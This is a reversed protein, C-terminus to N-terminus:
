WSRYAENCAVIVDDDFIYDQSEFELHLKSIIKKRKKPSKLNNSPSCENSKNIFSELDERIYVYNQTFHLHKTQNGISFPLQYTPKIRLLDTFCINDFKDQNITSFISIDYEFSKVQEPSKIVGVITRKPQQINPILIGSNGYSKYTTNIFMDWKPNLINMKNVLIGNRFSYSREM